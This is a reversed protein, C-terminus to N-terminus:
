SNTLDLAELNVYALTADKDEVAEVDVWDVRIDTFLEM